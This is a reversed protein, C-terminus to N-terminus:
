IDSQIDYLFELLYFIYVRSYSAILGLLGSPRVEALMGQVDLISTSANCELLAECMRYFGRHAAIHLPTRGRGSYANGFFSLTYM